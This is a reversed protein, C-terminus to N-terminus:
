MAAAVIGHLVPPVAALVAALSEIAAAIGVGDHTTFLVVVSSCRQARLEAQRWWIGQLGRDIM